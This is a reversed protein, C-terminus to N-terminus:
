SPDPTWDDPAPGAWGGAARVQAPPWHQAVWPAAIQKVPPPNADLAKTVVALWWEDDGATASACARDWQSQQLVIDTWRSSRKGKVEVARREKVGLHARVAALDAGWRPRRERSMVDWGGDVLQDRVRNSAAVDIAHIHEYRARANRAYDVDKDRMGTRLGALRRAIAVPDPDTLVWSPLGCAATLAAAEVPTTAVLTARRDDTFPGLYTLEPHRRIIEVDVAQDFRVLPAHWAETVPRSKPHTLWRRHVHTVWWVGLLVRRGGYADDDAVPVDATRPISRQVVILDGAAIADHEAVHRNWRDGVWSSPPATFDWLVPVTAPDSEEYRGTGPASEAPNFKAVFVRRAQKTPAAGFDARPRRPPREPRGGADGYRELLEGHVQQRITEANEASLDDDARHRRVLPAGFLASDSAAPVPPLAPAPM